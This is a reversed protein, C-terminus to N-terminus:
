RPEFKELLRKRDEPTLQRFEQEEHEDPVKCGGCMLTTPNRNHTLGLTHGLEHAIVNRWLHPLGAPSEPDKRIGVFYRNPNDLPWAFSMLPQRSLLVIVEGGLDILEPPFAPTADKPGYRGARLSIQRAFNELIRNLRTPAVDSEYPAVILVRRDSPTEGYSGGPMGAVVLLTLIALPWVRATCGIARARATPFLVSLFMTARHYGLGEEIRDPCSSTQRKSGIASQVAVVIDPRSSPRWWRPAFVKDLKAGTVRNEACSPLGRGCKTRYTCTAAVHCDLGKRDRAETYRRHGKSL